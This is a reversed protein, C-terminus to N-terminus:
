QLFGCSALLGSIVEADEDTRLQYLETEGGPGDIHLVLNETTTAVFEAIASGVKDCTDFSDINVEIATKAVTAEFGHELIHSRLPRNFSAGAGTLSILVPAGTM